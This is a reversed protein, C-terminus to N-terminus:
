VVLYKTVNLVIEGTVEVDNWDFYEIVDGTTHNLGDRHHYLWQGNKLFCVTKCGRFPLFSPRKVAFIRDDSLHGIISYVKVLDTTNNTRKEYDTQQVIEWINNLFRRNNGVIELRLRPETQTFGLQNLDIIYAINEVLHTSEYYNSGLCGYEEGCFGIFKLNYKPTINHDVFYKAIGLVMSMGIASDATGQCWMSDYLCCVIVTKRTNKGNLLGIVNYSEVSTNLQQKLCLDITYDNISKNIKEGITRNIYFTPIGAEGFYCMDHENKNTDYIIRGKYHPHLPKTLRDKIKEIGRKLPSFIESNFLDRLSKGNFTYNQVQKKILLVYDKTDNKVSPHERKITLGSLNFNLTSDSIKRLTNYDVKTLKPACDVNEIKTENHITLSYDLVEVKSTIFDGPFRPKLQEKTTQLGLNSMNEYLIEAARHEGKTGFARGKAIEGNEEDYETFIINSLAKTINYIFSVDLTKIEDLSQIHKDEAICRNFNSVIILFIIFIFIISNKKM